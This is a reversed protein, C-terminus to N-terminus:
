PSNRGPCNCPSLALVALTPVGALKERVFVVTGASIEAVPPLPWIVVMLAANLAGSVAVTFSEAPLRTLPIVTVNVTWPVPAPPVNATPLCCAVVLADPWATDPVNVALLVAPLKATVAAAAPTPVGALKESVLEGPPAAAMVAVPPVGCLAAM